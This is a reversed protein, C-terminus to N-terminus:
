EAVPLHKHAEAYIRLAATFLSHYNVGQKQFWALIDPEVEVTVQVLSEPVQWTAEEFFSDSLPPVDSTDITDDTLADFLALNTKSSKRM